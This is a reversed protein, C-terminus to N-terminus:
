MFAIRRILKTTNINRFLRLLLVLFKRDQHINHNGGGEKNHISWSYGKVYKKGRMYFDIGDIFVDKFQSRNKLLNIMFVYIITPAREFKVHLLGIKIGRQQRIRIIKKEPFLRKIKRYNCSYCIIFKINSNNIKRASIWDMAKATVHNLLLMDCRKNSISSNMFNNTRIVYDFNYLFEDTPQNKAPGVIIIKKGDFIDKM